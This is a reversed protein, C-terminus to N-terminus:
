VEARHAAVPMIDVEASMMLSPDLITASYSALISQSGMIVIAGSAGESRLVERAARISHHFQELNM